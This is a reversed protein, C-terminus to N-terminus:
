SQFSIGLFYSPKNAIFKVYSLYEAGLVISFIFIRCATKSRDALCWQWDLGNVKLNPWIPWIPLATYSTAGFRSGSNQNKKWKGHIAIIWKIHFGNNSKGEFKKPINKWDTHLAKYLIDVYWWYRNSINAFFNWKKQVSWLENKWLSALFLDRSWGAAGSHM